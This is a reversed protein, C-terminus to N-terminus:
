RIAFVVRLPTQRGKPLLTLEILPPRTPAHEDLWQKKGQHWFKWTAQEVDPLLEMWFRMREDPQVYQNGKGSKIPSRTVPNPDDENPPLYFNPTSMALVFNEDDDDGHDGGGASDAPRGGPRVDKRRRPSLTVEGHEHRPLPGFLFADHDGRIVFEQRFPFREVVRLELNAGQPLTAFTDRCLRVFTRIRRNEKQISEIDAAARTSGSVIGFMTGGIVSLIALAVVVEVLSFAACQRNWRRPAWISIRDPAISM